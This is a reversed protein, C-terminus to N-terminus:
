LTLLRALAAAVALQREAAQPVGNPLACWLFEQLRLLSIAELGGGATLSRLAARADEAVAPDERALTQLAEAETMMRDTQGVSDAPPLHTTSKAPSTRTARRVSIGTATRKKRLYQVSPQSRGERGRRDAPQPMIAPTLPM